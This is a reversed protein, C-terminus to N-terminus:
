ILWNFLESFLVFFALLVKRWTQRLADGLFSIEVSGGIHKAVTGFFQTLLAMYKEVLRSFLSNLSIRNM